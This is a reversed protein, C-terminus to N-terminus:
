AELFCKHPVLIVFHVLLKEILIFVVLKFEIIIFSLRIVKFFVNGFPISNTATEFVFGFSNIVLVLSMVQLLPTLISQNYFAAVWPAVGCLCGAVLIGVLLIVIIPLSCIVTKTNHLTM